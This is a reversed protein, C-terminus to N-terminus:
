IFLYLLWAPTRPDLGSARLKIVYPFMLARIIDHRQMTTLYQGHCVRQQLHNIVDLVIDRCEIPSACKEGYKDTISTKINLYEDESVPRKHEIETEDAGGNNIWQVIHNDAINNGILDAMIHRDSGPVPSSYSTGM